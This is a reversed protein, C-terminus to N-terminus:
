LSTLVHLISSTITTWLSPAATATQNVTSAAVASNPVSATKVTTEEYCGTYSLGQAACYKDYKAAATSHTVTIKGKLSTITAQTLCQYGASGCTMIEYCSKGSGCSTDYKAAGTSHTVIGKSVPVATAASSSNFCSYGANTCADTAPATAGYCLYSAGFDAKCEADGGTIETGGRSGATNAVSCTGKLSSCSTTGGNGGGGTKASTAGPVWCKFNTGGPCYGTSYYGGTGNHHVTDTECYAGAHGTITLSSCMASAGDICRTTQTASTTCKTTPTAINDTEITVSCSTTGPAATESIINGAKGNTLTYKYNAATLNSEATTYVEGVVDPAPSKCAATTTPKGVTYTGNASALITSTAAASVLVTAKGSSLLTIPDSGNTNASNKTSTATVTQTCTTSTCYDTKGDSVPHTSTNTMGHITKGSSDNFSFNYATPSAKNGQTTTTVPPWTVTM